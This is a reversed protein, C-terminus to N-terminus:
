PRRCFSGVITCLMPTALIKEPPLPQVKKRSFTSLRKKTAAILVCASAVLNVRCELDEGHVLFTSYFKVEQEAQATCKGAQLPQV